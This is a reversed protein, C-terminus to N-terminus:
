TIPGVQAQQLGDNRCDQVNRGAAAYVHLGCTGRRTQEQFQEMRRLADVDPNVRLRSGVACDEANRCVDCALRPITEGRRREQENPRQALTRADFALAADKGSKVQGSGLIMSASKGSHTM